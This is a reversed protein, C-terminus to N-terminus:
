SAVERWSRGHGVMADRLGKLRPVAVEALFATREDGVMTVAEGWIARGAIIGSAGNDLATVTRDVFADYEVGASLLAWPVTGLADSVRKCGEASGPWELKLLSPSLTALREASRIVSEAKEEASKKPLSPAFSVLPEIISPIGHAACDAVIEAVRDMAETALDPEGEVAPRDPDWYVLFKLGQGGLAKVWAANRQPDLVTRYEGNWEDKTAPEAAVLLGVGDALAGADQVASVGFEPDLLVGTSLPSLAGVIDVKFARLDSEEAPQGAGTLMRRLTGRQDMALVALLGADDALTDLGTATM